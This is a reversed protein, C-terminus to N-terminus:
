ELAVISEGRFSLKLIERLMLGTNLNRSFHIMVFRIRCSDLEQGTLVITIVYKYHHYTPPPLPISPPNPMRFPTAYEGYVDRGRDIYSYEYRVKLVIRRNSVRIDKIPVMLDYVPEEDYGTYFAIYLVENDFYIYVIVDDTFREFYHNGGTDRYLYTVKVKGGYVNESAAVYSYVPTPLLVILFLLILLVSIKKLM